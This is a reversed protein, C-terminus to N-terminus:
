QERTGHLQYIRETAEGVAARVDEDADNILALLPKIARADGLDGLSRAITARVDAQDDQLAVMLPEVARQDNSHGLAWAAGKRVLPQENKLAAAFVELPPHIRVLASIAARRVEHDPDNLADALPQAARRNALQGLAWAACVRAQPNASQLADVLVPFAHRGLKVLATIAGRRVQADWHQLATALPQLAYVGMDVCGEWEGLAVLYSAGLESPEPKWGLQQLASAARERTAEDPSQLLQTLPESAPEGIRALAAAAAERVTWHEDELAAALEKVTRVDGIQGLAKVATQRIDPQEHGLADILLDVAPTGIKVLVWYAAQRAPHDAALAATLPAVAARGLQVLAMFAAQRRQMDEDCLAEILPDAAPFGIAVCQGWDGKVMWYRASTTDSGPHWTMQDLAGAALTRLPVTQAALLSTLHEVVTTRQQGEGATGIEVLATFIAPHMEEKWRGLAAVLPEIARGDGLKGLGWAAAQEVDSERDELAAILPEVGQPHAIEGLAWVADKRVRGDEDGLTAALAAIAEPSRLHGLARAATQRIVVDPKYGLAKILGRVDRRARLKDVNPAGTGLLSMAM